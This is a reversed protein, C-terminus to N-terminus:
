LTNYPIFKVNYGSLFEENSNLSAFNLQYYKYKCKRSALYVKYQGFPSLRLAESAVLSAPSDFDQLSSAGSLSFTLSSDGIVEIEELLKRTTPAGFTLWATTALCPFNIQAGGSYDTHKTSDYIHLGTDPTAPSLTPLGAGAYLWQSLGSANINFLMSSSAITPLWTLWTNSRMDFVLHTDCFTNIGTPIALIYLDFEGDSVFMAHCNQIAAPNITDLVDQIPRGVDVYTQFNSQIVRRDPTLWFCGAPTGEIYVMKWVDQNLVGAEQTIIAPEQFNTPDNGYLARVHRQTGIYLTVGDTLLGTVTEAGESIDFYNDAPWAEEYKGAIFGDPLTLETISKTFFLNQGQSMWLRGLHKVCLDGGPPPTNNAVGFENGFDDTFLLLQNLVLTTEPTNDTYSTVSNLVEAVRYLISPDGGDATALVDKHTVQPDSFVPLTLAQQKSTLPGTSASASSLDGYHGTLSNYPVIYYVRGVTLTVSGASTSGLSIQDALMYVTIQVFDLSITEGTHGSGGGVLCGFAVANIDAPTWTGGWLDTPGGLTHFGNTTTLNATKQSGYSVGAKALNVTVIGTTDVKGKVEVKIGKIAGASSFGFGTVTIAGTTYFGPPFTETAFVNDEILINNANIWSGTYYVTISIADIKPNPAPAMVGTIEASIVFGFNSANIDSTTWTSGWLDVNSGYTKVEGALWPDGSSRDTAQVVGGKVLRIRADGIVGHDLNTAARTIDVKIGAISSGLPLAFGFNSVHLYHTDVTDVTGTVSTYGGDPAGQAATPTNWHFAADGFSADDVATGAYKQSSGSSAVSATSGANPGQSGSAIVQTADIGWNSDGGSSDGNWKKQDAVLGDCLYAYSRSNLIRPVKSTFLINNRYFSGDENFAQLLVTGDLKDQVALITRLSDADRQFETMRQYPSTPTTNAFINSGRRRRLVGTTIPMVNLLQQWTSQEQAPPDTHSDQGTRSFDDRLYRQAQSDQADPNLPDFPRLPSKYYAM